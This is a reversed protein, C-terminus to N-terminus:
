LGGLLQSIPNGGGAGPLSASLYQQQRQMDSLTSELRSFQGVIDQRRRDVYRTKQDIQDDISRIRSNMGAEKISLIGNGSQYYATYVSRLRNALGNPGAITQAIRDFDSDLLKNFKDEKFTLQGNKEFEIGLQSLFVSQPDSDSSEVPFGEHITNRLRYELTQLSTDGAFTLTTDSHADVSNQKSIFQLVQNVQDVLGKVKGSMKQNDEKITLTFPQDPRAQKLHVNVGPLFDTIDNSGLEVEFGDISVIANKADTNDDIYLEADGDMFYFEPYDIQNIAGDKKGTLLLKWPEDPDSDDRIVAARVPSNSQQNILSAIGRLSSDNDDIYIESTDGNQLNLTVFGQGLVKDDANEFGSTIVSTHAALEDIEITYQGPEAKEKDLTVSMLNGGDGLDAVLERFKKFSSVESIAKDLGMFTNKFEQFLKLRAQEKTKHAELTKIPQSEAEIIQQVAQKFQGGGVPDFRLGM